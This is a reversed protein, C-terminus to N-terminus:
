RPRRQSTRRIAGVPQDRGKSSAIGSGSPRVRTVSGHRAFLHKQPGPKVVEGGTDRIACRALPLADGIGFCGGDGCCLIARSITGGRRILGPAPRLAPLGGACRSRGAGLGIVNGFQGNMQFSSSPSYPAPGGVIGGIIQSFFLEGSRPIGSARSATARTSRGGSGFSVEAIVM